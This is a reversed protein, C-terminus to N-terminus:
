SLARVIVLNQFESMSPVSDVNLISSSSHDVLLLEVYDASFSWLNHLSTLFSQFNTKIAAGANTFFIQLNSANVEPTQRTLLAPNLPNPLFGYKV